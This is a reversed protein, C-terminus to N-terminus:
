LGSVWFSSSRNKECSTSHVTSSNIRSPSLENGKLVHSFLTFLTLKSTQLFGGFNIVM